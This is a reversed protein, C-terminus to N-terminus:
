RTSPVIVAALLVVAVAILALAGTWAVRRWLDAQKEAGLGPTDWRPPSTFLVSLIGGRGEAMGLDRTDLQGRQVICEVADAFFSSAMSTGLARDEGLM